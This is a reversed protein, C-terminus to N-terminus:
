RARKLYECASKYEVDEDTHRTHTFEEEEVSELNKNLLSTVTQALERLM